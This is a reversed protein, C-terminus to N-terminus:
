QNRRIFENDIYEDGIGPQWVDDIDVGSVTVTTTIVPQEVVTHNSYCQWEPSADKDWRVINDILGNEDIVAYTKVM